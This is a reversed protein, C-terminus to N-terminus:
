VSVDVGVAVAVAVLVDVAVGVAVAVAVAVGVFVGVAVGVEVNVGVGVGNALLMTSFSNTGRGLFVSQFPSPVSPGWSEQISSYLELETATSRLPQAKAPM